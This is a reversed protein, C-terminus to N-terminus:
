IALAILKFAGYVLVITWAVTLGLGVVVVATPWINHKKSGTASAPEVGNVTMESMTEGLGRWSYNRGDIVSYQSAPQKVTVALVLVHPKKGRKDRNKRLAANAASGL